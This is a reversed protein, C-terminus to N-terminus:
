QSIDDEVCFEGTQGAIHVGDHQRQLLDFQSPYIPVRDQFAGPWRHEVTRYLDGAAADEADMRIDGLRDIVQESPKGRLRMGDFLRLLLPV